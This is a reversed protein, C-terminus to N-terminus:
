VVKGGFNSVCSAETVTNSIEQSCLFFNAVVLGLLLAVTCFLVACICHSSSHGKISFKSCAFLATLTVFIGGLLTACIVDAMIILSNRKLYQAERTKLYCKLRYELNELYQNCDLYVNSQSVCNDWGRVLESDVIKRLQQIFIVDNDNTVESDKIKALRNKIISSLCQKKNDDDILPILNAIEETNKRDIATVLEGYVDRALIEPTQKDLQKQSNTPM